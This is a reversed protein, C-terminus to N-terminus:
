MQINLITEVATRGTQDKYSVEFRNIGKQFYKALTKIKIKAIVDRNGDVTRSQMIELPLPDITKGNVSDILFQEPQVGQAVIHIKFDEPKANPQLFEDLLVDATLPALLGGLNIAPLSAADAQIAVPMDPGSYADFITGEPLEAPAGTIFILPVFVIVGLSITMAMRSKGEKNYGGTLQLPQGDVTKSDLAGIVIKGKVGAINAHKVSEVKCTGHTGAKVLTVGQLVVDRWVSCQVIDGPEAKGRKGSVAQELRFYVRTGEPLVKTTSAIVLQPSVLLAASIVVACFRRYM